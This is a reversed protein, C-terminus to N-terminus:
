RVNTDAAVSKFEAFDREIDEDTVEPPIHKGIEDTLEMFRQRRIEMPVDNSDRIPYIVAVPDEDRMVIVADGRELIEAARGGLEEISITTM